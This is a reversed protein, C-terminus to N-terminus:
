SKAISTVVARSNIEILGRCPLFTCVKHVRMARLSCPAPTPIAAGNAKIGLALKAPFRV